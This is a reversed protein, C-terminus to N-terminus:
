FHRRNKQAFEKLTTYLIHDPPCYEKVLKLISKQLLFDFSIKKNRDELRIKWVIPTTDISVKDWPTLIKKFYIGDNCVILGSDTVEDSVFVTFVIGFSVFIFISSQSLEITRLWLGILVLCVSMLFCIFWFKFYDIRIKKM